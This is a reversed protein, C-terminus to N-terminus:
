KRLILNEEPFFRKQGAKQKQRSTEALSILCKKQQQGQSKLWRVTNYSYETLVSRTAQAMNPILQSFGTMADLYVKLWIM